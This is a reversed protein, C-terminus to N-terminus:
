NKKKYKFKKPDSFTSFTTLSYATTKDDVTEGTEHSQKMLYIVALFIPIGAWNELYDWSMHVQVTACEYFIM